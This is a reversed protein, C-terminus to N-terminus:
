LLYRRGYKLFLKRLCLAEPHFCPLRMSKQQVLIQHEIATFFQAYTLRPNIEDNQYKMSGRKVTGFVM